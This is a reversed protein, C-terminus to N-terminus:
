ETKSDILGQLKQVDTTTGVQIFADRRLIFIPFRNQYKAIGTKRADIVMQSIDPDNAMTQRMVTDFDEGKEVSVIATVYSVKTVKM